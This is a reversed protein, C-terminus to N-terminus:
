NGREVQLWWRRLREEQYRYFIFLPKTVTDARRGPVTPCSEELLIKKPETLAALHEKAGQEGITLEGRLKKKM